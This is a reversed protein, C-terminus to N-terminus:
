EKGQNRRARLQSKSPPPLELGAGKLATTLDAMRRRENSPTAPYRTIYDGTPNYFRTYGSADDTVTWGQSKAWKAIDQIARNM